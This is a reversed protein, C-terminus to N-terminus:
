PGLAFSPFFETWLKGHPGRVRSLGDCVLRNKTPIGGIKYRRCFIPKHPHKGVLWSLIPNQRPFNLCTQNESTRVSRTPQHTTTGSLKDAVFIHQLWHFLTIEMMHYKSGSDLMRSTYSSLLDALTQTHHALFGSLNTESLFDPTERCFM